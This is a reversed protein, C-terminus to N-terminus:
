LITCEKTKPLFTLNSVRRILKSVKSSEPPLLSNAAAELVDRVGEMSSASCEVYAVAGIAQSKEIGKEYTIAPAGNWEKLKALQGTSDFRKDKKTAVLIIPVQPLYSRAEHLWIEEVNDFSNPNAVSYCVVLVDTGPYILPRIKDEGGSESYGVATDFITVKFEKGRVDVPVDRSTNLKTPPELPNFKNTAFANILSSKGTQADGIVVVKVDISDM